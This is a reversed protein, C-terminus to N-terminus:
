ASSGPAGTTPASSVPVARSGPGIRQVASPLRPDPDAQRASVYAGVSCVAVIIVGPVIAIPADAVLAIVVVAAVFVVFVAGALLAAKNQAM